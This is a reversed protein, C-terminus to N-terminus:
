LLAHHQQLFFIRSEPLPKTILPFQATKLMPLPSHGINIIMRLLLLSTIHQEVSGISHLLIDMTDPHYFGEDTLILLHFLKGFYGTRKVLIKGLCLFNQSEVAWYHLKAHICTDNGNGPHAGV